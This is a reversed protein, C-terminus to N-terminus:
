SSEFSIMTTQQLNWVVLLLMKRAQTGQPKHVLTTKIIIKRKSKTNLLIGSGDNLIIHM